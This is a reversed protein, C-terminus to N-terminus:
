ACFRNKKLAGGEQNSVGPGMKKANKDPLRLGAIGQRGDVDWGGDTRGAGHMPARGLAGHGRGGARSGVSTRFGRM